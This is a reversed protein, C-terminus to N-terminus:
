WGTVYTLLLLYPPPSYAYWTKSLDALYNVFDVAEEDNVAIIIGGQDGFKHRVQNTGRARSGSFM